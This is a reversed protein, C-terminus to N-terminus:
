ICGVSKLSFRVNNDGFRLPTPCDTEAILRVCLHAALLGMRALFLAATLSFRVRNAEACHRACRHAALWAVGIRKLVAEVGFVKGKGFAPAQLRNFPDNKAIFDAQQPDEDPTKCILNFAAM